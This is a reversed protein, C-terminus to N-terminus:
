KKAVEVAIYISFFLFVFGSLVGILALLFHYQENTIQLQRLVQKKSCIETTSNYEYGSEFTQNINTTQRIVDPRNSPIYYLTGSRDFWYDDVCINRDKYLYAADLLVTLAILAFLIRM